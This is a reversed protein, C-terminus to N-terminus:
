KKKRKRNMEWMALTQKFDWTMTEIPLVMVNKVFIKWFKNDYLISDSEEYKKIDLLINRLSQRLFEFYESMETLIEYSARLM